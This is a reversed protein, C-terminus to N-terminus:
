RWVKVWILDHLSTLVFRVKLCFQDQIPLLTLPRVARHRCGLLLTMLKVDHFLVCTPLTMQTEVFNSSKTCAGIM